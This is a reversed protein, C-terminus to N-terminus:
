VTLRRESTLHMNDAVVPYTTIVAAVPHTYCLLVRYELAVATSTSLSSVSLAIQLAPPQKGDAFIIPVFSGHRFLASLCTRPAGTRARRRRRSRNRASMKVHRELASTRAVPPPSPPFSHSHSFAEFSFAYKLSCIVATSLRLIQIVVTIIRKSFVRRSFIM